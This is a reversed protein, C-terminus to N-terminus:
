FLTQLTERNDMNRGSVREEFAGEIQINNQNCFTVCENIHKEGSQNDTSVRTYIYGRM